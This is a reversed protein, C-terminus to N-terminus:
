ARGRSWCTLLPRAALLRQISRSGGSFNMPSVKRPDSQAKSAHFTTVLRDTTLPGRGRFSRLGAGPPPSSTRHTGSFRVPLRRRSRNICLAPQAPGMRRERRALRAPGLTWACGNGRHSAGDRLVRGTAPAALTREGGMRCSSRRAAGSRGAGRAGAALCPGLRRRGRDGSAPRRAVRCGALVHPVARGRGAPRLAGV